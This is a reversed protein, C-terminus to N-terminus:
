YVKVNDCHIAQMINSQAVYLEYNFQSDNKLESAQKILSMRKTRYSTIYNLNKYPLQSATVNYIFNSKRIHGMIKSYLNLFFFKQRMLNHVPFSRNAPAWEPQLPFHLQHM